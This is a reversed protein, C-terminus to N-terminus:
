GCPGPRADHGRDAHRQAATPTGASPSAPVQGAQLARDGGDRQQEAAEAEPERQRRDVGGHEGAGVVVHVAQGAREDHDDRMTPM